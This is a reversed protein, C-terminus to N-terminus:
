NMMSMEGSEGESESEGEMEVGVGRGSRSMARFEPVKLSKGEDADVKDEEMKELENM